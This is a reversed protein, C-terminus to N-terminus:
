NDRLWKEVDEYDILAFDCAEVGDKAIRKFHDNFIAVKNGIGVIVYAHGGIKKWDALWRAQKGKLGIRKKRVPMRKIFKFEALGVKALQLFKFIRDPTGYGYKDSLPEWHINRSKEKVKSTVFKETM